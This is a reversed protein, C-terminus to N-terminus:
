ATSSRGAAAASLASAPLSSANESENEDLVGSSAPDVRERVGVEADEVEEDRGDLAPSM